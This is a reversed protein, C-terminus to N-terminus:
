KRAITDLRRIIQSAAQKVLEEELISRQFASGLVAETDFTYDRALRVPQDAILQNNKRDTVSMTVTLILQFEEVKGTVASVSLVSQDITENSLRLIFDAADRGTALSAGAARLQSRVEAAVGAAGTESLYIASDTSQAQPRSGRLHFGCSAIFLITLLFLYYHKM